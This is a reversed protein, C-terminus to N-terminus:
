VQRMRRPHIGPPHRTRRPHRRGIARRSKAPSAQTKAFVKAGTSRILARVANGKYSDLNDMIVINGEGLTPVLVRSM